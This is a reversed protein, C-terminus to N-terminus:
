KKYSSYVSDALAGQCTACSFAVEDRPITRHCAGCVAGEFSRNVDYTEKANQYARLDASSTVEFFQHESNHSRRNAPSHACSFCM